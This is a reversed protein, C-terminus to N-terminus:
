FLGWGANKASTSKGLSSAREKEVLDDETMSPPSSEPDDHDDFFSEEEEDDPHLYSTIPEPEPEPKPKSAEIRSMIGKCFARAKKIEVKFHIDSLMDSMEKLSEETGEYKKSVTKFVVRDKGLKAMRKETYARDCETLSTYSKITLRHLLTAANPAYNTLHYAMVFRGDDKVVIQLNVYNRKSENTSDRLIDGFVEVTATM